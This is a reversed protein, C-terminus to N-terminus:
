KSCIFDVFCGINVSVAFNYLYDINIIGSKLAIEEARFDRVFSVDDGVGLRFINELNNFLILFVSFFYEGLLLLLLDGDV